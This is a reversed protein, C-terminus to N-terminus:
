CRELRLRYLRRLEGGFLRCGARRRILTRLRPPDSPVSLSVNGGRVTHIPWPRGPTMERPQHDMCVRCHDRRRGNGWADRARRPPVSRVLACGATGLLGLQECAWSRHNRARPHLLLVGIGFLGAGSVSRGAMAMCRTTHCGEVWRHGNGASDAGATGSIATEATLTLSDFRARLHRVLTSYVAFLLADAILCLAGLAFGGSSSLGITSGRQVVIIGVGTLGVVLAIAHSTRLAEGLRARAVFATAVPILGVVLISAIGANTLRVGTYQLWFYAAIGLQGLGVLILLDSRSMWTLPKSRGDARLRRGVLVPVFFLSALGFRLAALVTPTLVTTGVSSTALLSRAAVFSGGWVVMTFGLLSYAMATDRDREVTGTSVTTTM